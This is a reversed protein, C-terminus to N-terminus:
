AGGVLGDDHTDLDTGISIGVVTGIVRPVALTLDDGRPAAAFIRFPAPSQFRTLVNQRAANTSRSDDAVYFLSRRRTLSRMVTGPFTRTGPVKLTIPPGFAAPPPFTFNGVACYYIESNQRGSFKAEEAEM